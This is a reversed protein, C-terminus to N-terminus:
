RYRRDETLRRMYQIQVKKLSKGEKLGRWTMEAILMGKLTMIAGTRAQRKTREQVFLVALVTQRERLDQVETLAARLCDRMGLSGPDCREGCLGHGLLLAGGESRWIM